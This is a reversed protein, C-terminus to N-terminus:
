TNWIRPIVAAKGLSSARLECWIHSFWDRAQATTNGLYRIVLLDEILTMGLRGDTDGPFQERLSDLQSPTVNSIVFSGTVPQGALQSLFSASAGNFRLRDILLPQHDRFIQWHTDLVGHDFAEDIVPRGLCQIEWAALKANGMLNIRLSSEVKAGPFLINEQPLWELVAGNAVNFVQQQTATQAASLYFKTAGPTTLLAKAGPQLDIDIQLRDGGVVGGPPHLLYVHCVDGEPYFARQVSLPGQRQRKSLITKRNPAAHFGLQLSAYWGTETTSSIALNSVSM